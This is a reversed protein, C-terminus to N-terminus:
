QIDENYLEADLTVSTTSSNQGTDNWILFRLLFPGLPINPISVRQQSTVARTGIVYPTGAPQVSSTGDEFTGGDTAYLIYVLWTGTPGTGHQFTLSVAAFRYKNTENDYQSGLHGAGNNVTVSSIGTSLNIPATWKVANSM